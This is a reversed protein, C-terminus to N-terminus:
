SERRRHSLMQPQESSQGRLNVPQAQWEAPWAQTESPQMQTCIFRSHPGSHEDQPAM